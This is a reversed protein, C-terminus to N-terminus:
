RMSVQCAAGSVNVDVDFLLYADISTDQDPRMGSGESTVTMVPAVVYPRLEVSADVVVDVASQGAPVPDLRGIEVRPLGEAEVFFAIDDIFDLNGGAPATVTLTMRQIRVSDIDDETYGENILEQSESIEVNDFGAFELDSLLQDVVTGRPIMAQGTAEVEVNDIDSCTALVLVFTVAALPRKVRGTYRGHAARAAIQIM